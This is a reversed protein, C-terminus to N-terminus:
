QSPRLEGFRALSLAGAVALTFGLIALPILGSRASDGLVLLGVGAPAATEGLVMGATATTVSGRQLATTYILFGLVGSIALLYASPEVAIREPNLQTLTRASLAVVGFLLGACLGLGVSLLPGGARAIAASAMGLVVVAVALAIDFGGGPDSTGERGASLGLMALGVCVAAVGAWEVRGLPERMLRAALVATVALSSAVAAQVLFLPLTRLAVFEAVFGICDMAVGLMFRWSRALRVLLRPDIGASKETARAAQAQLVSAAGFCVAALLAGVLSM